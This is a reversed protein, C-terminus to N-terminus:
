YLGHLAGGFNNVERAGMKAIILRKDEHDLWIKAAKVATNL